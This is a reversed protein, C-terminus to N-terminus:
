PWRRDPSTLDGRLQDHVINLVVLSSSALALVEQLHLSKSELHSHRYLPSCLGSEVPALHRHPPPAGVLCLGQQSISREQDFTVCTVTAWYTPAGVAHTDPESGLFTHLAPGSAKSM